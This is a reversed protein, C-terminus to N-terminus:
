GILQLALQARAQRLRQPDRGHQQRDHQMRLARAQQQRQARRAQAIMRPLDTKRAASDLGIIRVQGRRRGDPADGGHEGPHHGVFTVAICKM